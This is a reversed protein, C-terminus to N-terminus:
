ILLDLERQRGDEHLHLQCANLYIHPHEFSQGGQFHSNLQVVPNLGEKVAETVVGAILRRHRTHTVKRITSDSFLKATWDNLPVRVVPGEGTWLSVHDDKVDFIVRNHIVPLKRVDSRSRIHSPSRSSEGKVVCDDGGKACRLCIHLRTKIELRRLSRGEWPEEGDPRALPIRDQPLPFRIPIILQRATRYPTRELFGLISDCIANTAASLNSCCSLPGTWGEFGRHM